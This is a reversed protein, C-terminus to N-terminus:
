VPKEDNKLIAYYIENAPKGELIFHERLLGERRFGIKELVRCSPMNEEHVLATLRRLATREFVNRVFLAVSATAIGRGQSAECVQYGLQGYGMTHSMDSLSITGVVEGDAHILWRHCKWGPLNYFDSGAELYSKGLAEKSLDALPNHRVSSPEHRWSFIM